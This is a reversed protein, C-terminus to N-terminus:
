TVPFQVLARPGNFETSSLLGRYVGSVANEPVHLRITVDDEDGPLLRLRTPSLEVFASPIRQGSDAVLDSCAFCLDVVRQSDNRLRARLENPVGPIGPLTSQLLHQRPAPRTTLIDLVTAALDELETHARSVASILDRRSSSWMTSSTAINSLAGDAVEQQLIAAAREAIGSRERDRM